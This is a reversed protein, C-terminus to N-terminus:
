HLSLFVRRRVFFDAALIAAMPALVISYSAMFSIFSGASQLVKWPAFAWVGIIVAFM